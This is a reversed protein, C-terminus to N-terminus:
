NKIYNILKKIKRLFNELIIIPSYRYLIYYIKNKTGPINKLSTKEKCIKDKTGEDKWDISYFKPNKLFDSLCRDLATDIEEGSYINSLEHIKTSDFIRNYIRDYEYQYNPKLIKTKYINDVFKIKMDKGTAKKFASVYTELVQKWTRSNSTTIQYIEGTGTTNTCVSAIQKAVDYGFSLTTKKDLLDKSFVVSKGNLARFLWKEKEYIGLQLKTNNYTIYPRIITYNNKSNQKLLDEEKCKLIAYDNNKLYMKDTCTDLLRSCKETIPEQSNAYVRSSSIFIYNNTSNLLMDIRSEFLQLNDYMMFDVIVDFKDKLIESIFNNDMANGVIYNINTTDKQSNRTTVFIDNNNDQLITGLDKGIAGTGGLLLIKM